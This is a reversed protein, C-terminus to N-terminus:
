PCTAPGSADSRCWGALAMLTAASFAATDQVLGQLEMGAYAAVLFAKIIKPTVIPQGPGYVTGDQALKSRAFKETIEAALQRTVAMLTYLTEVDLYSQDPQGFGNLQYTTVARLVEATRSRHVVTVDRYQAFM